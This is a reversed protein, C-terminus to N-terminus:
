CCPQELARTKRALHHVKETQRSENQVLPV